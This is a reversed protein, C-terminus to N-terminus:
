ASISIVLIKEGLKLADNGLALICDVFGNTVELYLSVPLELLPDNPFFQSM